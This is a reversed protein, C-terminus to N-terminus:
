TGILCRISKPSVVVPDLPVRVELPQRDSKIFMSLPEIESILSDLEDLPIKEKRLYQRFISLCLKSAPSLPTQKNNNKYKSHTEVLLLAIRVREDETARSTASELQNNGLLRKRLSASYLMQLVRERIVINSIEKPDRQFPSESESVRNANKEDSIRERLFDDLHFGMLISSVTENGRMLEKMSVSDSPTLYKITKKQNM